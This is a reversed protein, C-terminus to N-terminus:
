GLFLHGPNCCPPNDCRHLVCLGAPIPGKCFLWALRHARMTRGYCGFTGYGQKGRAGLWEWCDNPGRRLVNYWFMSETMKFPAEVGRAALYRSLFLFYLSDREIEEMLGAESEAAPM